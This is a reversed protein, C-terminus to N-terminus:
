RVRVTEIASKSTSYKTPGVVGGRYRAVFHWSGRAKPKLSYAFRGKRIKVKASGASVWRGGVRHSKSIVVYGRPTYPSGASSVTGTLKLTRGSWVSSPGSLKTRTSFTPVYYEYAGMDPRPGWPRAIGDRDAPPAATATAVDICPSGPQLRYDGDPGSVFGPNVHISALGVGVGDEGTCCYTVWLGYVDDYTPSMSARNGWIICNVASGQPYSYVGGGDLGTTRNATITDNAFSAGAAYVGGGSGTARNGAIVNNESVLGKAYVGGGEGGAAENGSVSNGALTLTGEYSDVGGGVGALARNGDIVNGAVVASGGCSLGGGRYASRNGTITNDLIEPDSPQQCLIGGGSSGAATTWNGTLENGAILPECDACAIGGGGVSGASNAAVINTNIWPSGRVASIGGGMQAATNNVILNGTITVTSEVSHIGGGDNFSANGIIHNESITLDDAGVCYIGGGAHGKGGTITFRSVFEGGGLEEAYIVVESGSGMLTTSEAGAGLLSVGSKMVIDGRFIGAGVRVTDGSSAMTIGKQVTGYPHAVSGDAPPADTGVVSVHIDAALATVPLAVIVVCFSALALLRAVVSAHAFFRGSTM